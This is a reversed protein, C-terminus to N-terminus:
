CKEYFGSAWRAIKSQKCHAQCPKPRTYQNCVVFCNWVSAEAAEMMTIQVEPLPYASLFRESRERIPPQATDSPNGYFVGGKAKESSPSKGTEFDKGKHVADSIRFFLSLSLSFFYFYFYIDNVALNSKAQHVASSM